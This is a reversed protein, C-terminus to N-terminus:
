STAGKEMWADQANRHNVLLTYNSYKNLNANSATRSDANSMRGNLLVTQQSLLRFYSCTRKIDFHYNIRIMNNDGYGIYFQTKYNVTNNDYGSVSM